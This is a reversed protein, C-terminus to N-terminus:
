PGRVYSSSLPSSAVLMREFSPRIELFFLPLLPRVLYSELILYAPDPDRSTAFVVVGGVFV